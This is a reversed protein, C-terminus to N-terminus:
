YVPAHNCLSKRVAPLEALETLSTMLYEFTAIKEIIDALTWHSIIASRAM